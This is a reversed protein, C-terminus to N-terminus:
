PPIKSHVIYGELGQLVVCGKRTYLPLKNEPLRSSDTFGGWIDLAYVVRFLVQPLLKSVPNINALLTAYTLLTGSSSICSYSTTWFYTWICYLCCKNSTWVSKNELEPYMKVQYFIPIAEKGMFNIWQVQTKTPNSDDRLRVLQSVLAELHLVHVPKSSKM